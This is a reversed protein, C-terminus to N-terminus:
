GQREHAADAVDTTLATCLPGVDLDDRLAIHKLRERFELVRWNDRTLNCDVAVNQKRKVEGPNGISLNVEAM